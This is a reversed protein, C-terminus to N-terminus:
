LQSVDSIARAFRGFDLRIRKLVVEDGPPPVFGYTAENTSPSLASLAFAITKDVLVWDRGGPLSTKAGTLTSFGPEGGARLALLQRLQNAQTQLTQYTSARQQLTGLREVRANAQGLFRLGLLGVLVLLTAIILFGFLLKTRVNAPVRAAGRVLVNDAGVLAAWRRRRRPAQLAETQAM